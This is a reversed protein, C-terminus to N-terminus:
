KESGLVSDQGAVVVRINLTGEKSTAVGSIECAAPHDLVTLTTVAGAKLKQNDNLCEGLFEVIQATAANLEEAREGSLDGTDALYATYAIAAFSGGVWQGITFADSSSRIKYEKIQSAVYLLAGDAAYLKVDLAVDNAHATYVEYGDEAVPAEEWTFVFDSANSVIDFVSRFNDQTINIPTTPQITLTDAFAGVSVLSLILALVIAATRKM